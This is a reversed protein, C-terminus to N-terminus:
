AAGFRGCRLDEHRRSRDAAIGEQLGDARAYDHRLDRRDHRVDSGYWHGDEAKVPATSLVLGFAVAGLTLLKSYRMKTGEKMSVAVLRRKIVRCFSPLTKAAFSWRFNLRAVIGYNHNKRETSRRILQPPRGYIVM